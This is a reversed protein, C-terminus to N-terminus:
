VPPAAPPELPAAGPASAVEPPAAGAPAQAQAPAGFKVQKALDEPVRMAILARQLAWDVLPSVGEGLQAGISGILQLLELANNREIERALLGLVGRALVQSDGKISPDDEFLMNYNYLLEGM